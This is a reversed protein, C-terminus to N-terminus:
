KGKVAEYDVVNWSHHVQKTELKRLSEPLKKHVGIGTALVVKKAYIQIGDEMRGIFGNESKELSLLQKKYFSFPMKHLVDLLYARFLANPLRSKKIEVADAPFNKEIFTSLNFKKDKSFIESANHDSRIATDNLTHSLWLDFPKGVIVFDINKRWLEHALSVGYPGAGVILITTKM